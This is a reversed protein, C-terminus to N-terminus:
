EKSYRLDLGNLFHTFVSPQRSIPEAFARSLADAREDWRADGTIRGLLLLNSLAVSNVSPLAGDYIEKPRVPLEVAAASTLFYGGQEADWFDDDM